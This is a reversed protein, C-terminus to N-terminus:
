KRPFVISLRKRVSEPRKAVWLPLWGRVAVRLQRAQPSPCRPTQCDVPSDNLVRPKAESGPTPAVRETQEAALEGPTPARTSRSRAM